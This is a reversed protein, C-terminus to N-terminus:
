LHYCKIILPIGTCDDDDEEDSNDGCDDAGDCKLYWPLCKKNKCEFKDKRCGAGSINFFLRRQYEKIDFTFFRPIYPIQAFKIEFTYM